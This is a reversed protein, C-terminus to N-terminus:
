AIAKETAPLVVKISANPALKPAQGAQTLYDRLWPKDAGNDVPAAALKAAQSVPAAQGMLIVPGSSAPAVATPTMAPAATPVVPGAPQGFNIAFGTPVPPILLQDMSGAVGATFNIERTLMAADLVNVAGSGDLDSVMLPDINRWFAYGPDTKTVYRQILTTDAAAYSANGNTDGVYGVVHLADDDAVAALPANGNIRTVALDIIQTRGYIATNPVRAVLDVLRLTGAPLTAAGPLTLTIRAQQGGNPATKRVFDIVTGAPLGSGARAGTIDLLSGDFGVTFTMSRQGGASTFNVPLYLGTAPVDIAQGPGRMFDPMSLTGGGYSNVVFRRVANDGSPRVRGDNNGDLASFADKFAQPGSALTVTYSDFVLPGGTRVFRLGKGDADIVISGTVRGVTAGVLQVDPLATGSEYLSIVSADFAHDFRVAFGTATPTFQTVNLWDPAVSVRLPAAAHSDDDDVATARITFNGGARAYTHSAQTANGAVAQVVGDGWDIRWQSIVDAGPDSAGLTIVHPQGPTAVAAGTVTLTPAVNVVSVQFSRTVTSTGDSASVTLGATSPGDIGTITLLGTDSITASADATGGSVTYSLRSADLGFVAVQVQVSAGEALSQDGIAEM